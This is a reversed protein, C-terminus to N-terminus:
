RVMGRSIRLLEDPPAVQATLAECFSEANYGCERQRHYLRGSVAVARADVDYRWGWMGVPGPELAIDGRDALMARIAVLCDDVDAFVAASRAVERHNSALMRWATWRGDARVSGVYPRDQRPWPPLCRGGGDLVGGVLLFRAENM